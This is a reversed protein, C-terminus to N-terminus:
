RRTGSSIPSAAAATPAEGSYAAPGGGIPAAPDITWRMARVSSGFTSAHSGPSRFRGQERTSANASWVTGAAAAVAAVVRPSPGFGSENAGVRARFPMGTRRELAEPGTFPVTSPLSQALPPLIDRM